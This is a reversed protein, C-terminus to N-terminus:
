DSEMFTKYDRWYRLMGRIFEKLWFAIEKRSLEIVQLSGSEPSIVIRAVDVEIGLSQKAMLCYISAQM